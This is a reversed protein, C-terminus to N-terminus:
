CTMLSPCRRFVVIHRYRNLGSIFDPFAVLLVGSSIFFQRAKNRFDVVTCKALPDLFDILHHKVQAREEHSVKNTVIDLGKYMQVADASIIEGGFKLALDLALKSKGAGTAGLVVVILPKSGKSVVSTAM